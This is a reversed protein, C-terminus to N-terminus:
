RRRSVSSNAAGHRLFCSLLGPYRPVMDLLQGTAMGTVASLRLPLQRYSILAGALLGASAVVGAVPAPMRDLKGPGFWCAVGYLALVLLAGVLSVLSTYPFRIKGYCVLGAALLVCLIMMWRFNAARVRINSNM